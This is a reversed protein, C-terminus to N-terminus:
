ADILDIAVDLHRRMRHHHRALVAVRHEAARGAPRHKTESAAVLASVRKEPVEVQVQGRGVAHLGAEPAPAVQGPLPRARRRRELVDM